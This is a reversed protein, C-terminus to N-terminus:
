GAEEGEEEIEDIIVNEVEKFRQKDEQWKKYRNDAERIHHHLTKEMLKKETNQVHPQSLFQNCHLCVSCADWIAKRFKIRNNFLRKFQLKAYSYSIPRKTAGKMERQYQLYLTKFTQFYKFYLISKLSTLKRTYHSMELDQDEIWQQFGQLDAKNKWFVTRNYKGRREDWNGHLLGRTQLILIRKIRQYGVHFVKYFFSQCVKVKQELHDQLYYSKQNHKKNYNILNSLIFDQEKKAKNKSSNYLHNLWFYSWKSGCERFCGCWDGCDPLGVSFRFGLTRACDHGRSRQQLKGKKNIKQKRGPFLISTEAKHVEEKNPYVGINESTYDMWMANLEFFHPWFAVVGFETM